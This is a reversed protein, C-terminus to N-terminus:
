GFELWEFNKRKLWHKEILIEDIYHESHISSVNM